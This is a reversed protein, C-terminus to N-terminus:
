AQYTLSEQLDYGEQDRRRYKVKVPTPLVSEMAHFATTATDISGSELSVSPTPELSISQEPQSSYRSDELLPIPEEDFSTSEVRVHPLPCLTSYLVRKTVFQHSRGINPLSKCRNWHDTGKEPSLSRVKQFCRVPDISANYGAM